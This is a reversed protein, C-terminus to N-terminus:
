DQGKWFRRHISKHLTCDQTQLSGQSLLAIRLHTCVAGLRPPPNRRHRAADATHHGQKGRSAERHTPDLSHRNRVLGATFRRACDKQLGMNTNRQPFLHPTHTAKGLRWADGPTATGRGRGGVARLSSQGSGGGGAGNGGVKMNGAVPKLRPQELLRPTSDRVFFQKM